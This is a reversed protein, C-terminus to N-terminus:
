KGARRGRLALGALLGGFASALWLWGGLSGSAVAGLLGMVPSGAIEAGIGMALGAPLSAVLATRAPMAPAPGGSLTAAAIAGLAVALDTQWETALPVLRWPAGTVLLVLWAVIAVAAAPAVLPRLPAQPVTGARLRAFTWLLILVGTQIPAAGKWRVLEPLVVPGASPLAAWFGLAFGALAAGCVAAAIAAAVSVGDDHVFALGVGFLGAGLVVGLGIPVAAGAGALGMPAGRGIAAAAFLLVGAGLMLIQAEVGAVQRRLIADRWHGVFAFGTVRLAAGGVGALAFLAGARWSESSLALAGAVILIIASGGIQARASRQPQRFYPLTQM